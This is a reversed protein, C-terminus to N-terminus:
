LYRRLYRMQVEKSYTNLKLTFVHFRKKSFYFEESGEPIDRDFGNKRAQTKSPFMGIAVVIDTMSSCESLYNLVPKSGDQNTMLLNVWYECIDGIIFNFSNDYPDRNPKDDTM